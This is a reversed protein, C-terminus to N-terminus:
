SGPKTVVSVATRLIIKFDLWLSWNEIYFNDFRARQDIPTDGRLGHVQAWGTLGCPVRHRDTYGVYLEGYQAVFHPREPRPGVLSMDGRLINILQPLEDLSTKRLFRGVPGVRRDASINWTTQSEAEDTPRMSRFKLLRFPVGDCGVREQRFIVGPGGELRVALAILAMPIALVVLAVGSIIVDVVRKIRWTTSRYASRRLRVLPLDEVTDMDQGVHTVQHLRPLVFVECKQHRCNRVLSVLENDSLAGDAVILARAQTRQLIDALNKPHGILPVPLDETESPAADIFGVARLGTQPHTSLARVVERGLSGAGVIVTLHTVWGRARWIRVFAYLVARVVVVAVLITGWLLMQPGGTLLQSLLILLATGILWLRGIQPLDDLVSLTLRSRNLGGLAFLTTFVLATGVTSQGGASVLVAALVCAVLDGAVFLPRVGDRLLPSFRGLPYDRRRQRRARAPGKRTGTRAQDRSRDRHRDHDASAGSQTRPLDPKFLTM